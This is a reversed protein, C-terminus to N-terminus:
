QWRRNRSCHRYKCTPQAKLLTGVERLSTIPFGEKECETKLRKLAVIENTRKDQARFVIGYIGEEIRNLCQFEGVSRCGMIDPLYHPFEEKERLDELPGEDSSESMTADVRKM